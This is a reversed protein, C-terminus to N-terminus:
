IANCVAKRNPRELMYVARALTATSAIHYPASSFAQQQNGSRALKVLTAWPEQPAPMFCCQLKELRLFM